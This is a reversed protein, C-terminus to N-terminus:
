DGGVWYRAEFEFVGVNTMNVQFTAIGNVDTTSNGLLEEIGGTVNYFCITEGPQPTGNKTLNAILTVNQYRVVTKPTAALTLSYEEVTVTVTNSHIWYAAIAVGILIVAIYIALVLLLKNESKV